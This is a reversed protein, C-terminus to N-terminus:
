RCPHQNSLIKSLYELFLSIGLPNLLLAVITTTNIIKTNIKPVLTYITNLLKELISKNSLIENINTVVLRTTSRILVGYANKIDGLVHHWNQVIPLISFISPVSPSFVLIALFIFLFNFSILQM